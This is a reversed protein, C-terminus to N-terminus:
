KLSIKGNLFARNDLHGGSVKHVAANIDLYCGADLAGSDELFVIRAQTRVPKFQNILFLLGAHFKEDAQGNILVTFCFSDGGYLNEFASKSGFDMTEKALRQETIYYDEKCFLEVIREIAKRTGKMKILPFAIKLLTRLQEESLFDGDLELGLWEAYVPLVEAPATDVALLKDINDIKEQLDNYLSSFVSIYRRFFEGNNKYVEPFTNFFTDGPAYVSFNSFEINGGYVELCIWLYRGNQEYLLVDNSNMFVSANKESLFQKKNAISIDPARLFDNIKLVGGKYIFENDDSALIIVAYAADEDANVNFTLRGWNVEPQGIEQTGKDLAKLFLAHTNSEPKTVLTGSSTESLTFGESFGRSLRNFGIKYKRLM